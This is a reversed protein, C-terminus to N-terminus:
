SWVWWPATSNEGYLLIDFLVHGILPPLVNGSLERLSGFVMGGFFTLIVFSKFGLGIDIGEAPLVFLSSKYITHAAAALVVAAAPTLCRLRGQVYGRFLVEEAAGILAAFIFFGGIKAPLAGMDYSIRYLLGFAAGIASGLLLYGAANGTFPAFGWIEPSGKEARMSHMLVISALVFGAASLLVLPLRSHVYLAFLWMGSSAAVAEIIPHSPDKLPEFGPTMQM